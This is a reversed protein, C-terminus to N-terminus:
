WVGDVIVIRGAMYLHVDVDVDVDVLLCHTM